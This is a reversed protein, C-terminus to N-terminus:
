FAKLKSIKRLMKMYHGLLGFLSPIIFLTIYEVFIQYKIPFYDQLFYYGRMPKVFLYQLFEALMNWNFIQFLLGLLIGIIPYIITFLIYMSRNHQRIGYFFWISLFVTSIIFAPLTNEEANTLAMLFNVLVTGILLYVIHRFLMKVRLKEGM